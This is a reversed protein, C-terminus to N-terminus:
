YIVYVKRLTETVDWRGSWGPPLVLLDGTQLAHNEGSADDTITAAGSLVFCVETDPRDVVPWGGPECEWIGINARAASEVVHTHLRPSGSDAGARIGAATLAGHVTSGPTLTLSPM